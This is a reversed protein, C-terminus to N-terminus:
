VQFVDAVRVFRELVASLPRGRHAVAVDLRTKQHASAQQAICAITMDARQVHVRLVELVEALRTLQLNRADARMRVQQVRPDADLIGSLADHVGPGQRVAPNNSVVGTTCIQSVIYGGFHIVTSSAKSTM